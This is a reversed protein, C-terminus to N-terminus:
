EVNKAARPVDIVTGARRGPLQIGQSPSAGALPEDSAPWGALHPVTPSRGPCVRPSARSFPPKRASTGVVRYDAANLVFERLPQFHYEIRNLYSASTPTAVLEVNHVEAWARIRPTWHLSLNDNVLYIRQEPPYRRRIYHYFALVETTTKALRYGGFLLDAHVDYAGFFYGVGGRRVYTARQRWPRKRSAYCHGPYPQLSIPGFEDFCVVVGDAPHTRYLAMIRTAKAEFRPDTSRKWSRTRQFSAHAEALISRITEISISPVVRRRVLYGRLRRLSWRTLPEGLSRPPALAIALIRERIAPEFTRPRGTGVKPNLSEFGFANFAHIIKRVHAEDTDCIRAIQAVPTYVVSAMLIQARQRVAQRGSKRFRALHEMEAPEPSRVYLSPRAVGAEETAWM